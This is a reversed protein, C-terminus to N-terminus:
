RVSFAKERRRSRTVQAAAAAGPVVAAGVWTGGGYNETQFGALGFPINTLMSIIEVSDDAEPLL